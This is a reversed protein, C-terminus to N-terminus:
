PRRWRDANLDFACKYFVHRPHNRREDPQEEFLFVCSTVDVASLTRPCVLVRNPTRMAVIGNLLADDMGNVFIETDGCLALGAVPRETFWTCM